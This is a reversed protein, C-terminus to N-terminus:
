FHGASFSVNNLDRNAPAMWGNDMMDKIFLQCFAVIYLILTFYTKFQVVVMVPSVPPQFRATSLFLNHYTWGCGTVELGDSRSVAKSVM